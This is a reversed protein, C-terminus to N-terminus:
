GEREIVEVKGRMLVHLPMPGYKRWLREHRAQERTRICKVDEAHATVAPDTTHPPRWEAVLFDVRYRHDPGLDITVEPIWWAVEGARQLLDLEMARRAQTKSPYVRGNYETKKAVGKLPRHYTSM